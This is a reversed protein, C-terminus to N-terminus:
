RNSRNFYFANTVYGANSLLQHEDKLFIGNFFWIGFHNKFGAFGLVNKNNITYTPISWKITEELETSIMIDRLLRLADTWKEQKEIYEEISDFKEM